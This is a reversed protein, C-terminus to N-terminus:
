SRVLVSSVDTPMGCCDLVLKCGSGGACVEWCLRLTSGALGVLEILLVGVLPTRWTEPNASVMLGNFLGDSTGVKRLLPTVRVLFETPSARLAEDLKDVLLLSATLPDIDVRCFSDALPAIDVRCFSAILPAIDVRCFSDTLSDIDDLRFSDALSVIDVRCFSDALPVIDVRCFRRELPSLPLIVLRALVELISGGNCWCGM